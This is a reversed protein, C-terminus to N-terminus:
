FVYGEKLVRDEANRKAIEKGTKLINGKQKKNIEELVDVVSKCYKEINDMIFVGIM